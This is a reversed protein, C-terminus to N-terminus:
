HTRKEKYLLNITDIGNQKILLLEMEGRKKIMKDGIVIKNINTDWGEYTLEYEEGKIIIKPFRNSDYTVNEVIGNFDYNRLIANHMIRLSVIICIIIVLGVPTLRPGYKKLNDRIEDFNKALM